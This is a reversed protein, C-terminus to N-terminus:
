AKVKLIQIRIAEAKNYNNTENQIQCINASIHMAHAEGASRPAVRKKSNTSDMQKMTVNTKRRMWKMLRGTTRGLTGHSIITLSFGNNM